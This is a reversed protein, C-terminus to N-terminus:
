ESIKAFSLAHGMPSTSYAGRAIAEEFFSCDDKKGFTMKQLIDQDFTKWLLVSAYADHRASVYELRSIEELRYSLRVRLDEKLFSRAQTLSEFQQSEIDGRNSIWLVYYSQENKILFAQAANPQKKQALLFGLCIGLVCLVLHLRHYQHPKPHKPTTM